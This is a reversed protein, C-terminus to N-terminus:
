GAQREDDAPVGILLRLDIDGNEGQPPSAFRARYAAPTTGMNRAFTRRMREYNPFGAKRAIQDVNQDTQELLRKAIEMRVTVVWEAPPMGTAEQFARFFNRLSMHARDALAEASLDAAPNEAIWRLLPALPGEVAQTRLATSFQSQNGPRKLFVVLLRAIAMALEHGYDQEVMALAMDTGSTIGASTWVGRDEVFVADSRVEVKPFSSQLADCDMWHTTAARGDLLGAHGLLFAGTCVSGIRRAAAQNRRLWGVLVPDCDSFDFYGGSIIITDYEGLTLDRLPSTDLGIGVQHPYPWRDPIPM